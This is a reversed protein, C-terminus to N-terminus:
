TTAEPCGPAPVLGSCNNAAPHDAQKMPAIPRTARVMFIASGASTATICLNIEACGAVLEQQPSAEVDAQRTQLAIDGARDGFGSM